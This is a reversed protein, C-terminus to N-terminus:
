EGESGLLAAVSDRYLAPVEGLRALDDGIRGAWIRALAPYKITNAM